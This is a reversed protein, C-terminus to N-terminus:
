IQAQWVIPFFVSMEAQGRNSWAYYPIFSTPHIRWQPQRVATYMEKRQSTRLMVEGKLVTVGGLLDSKHEPILPRHGDLYVDLISAEEPLDPSELCYILPGRQVAVQNRVEEILPHGEVFTVSMPLDLNVIDGPKWSRVVECFTGPRSVEDVPQGNVTLQAENAWSPIRFSIAFPDAKCSDIVCSITGDWPYESQQRMAFASGDGLKTELQNSGYLNVALGNETLLYAWGSVKSITRVLNPPCCFCEIYQERDASETCDAEQTYERTGHVMRLPNAYFYHKGDHSIGVLASNYLVREMVDGYKAEGTLNLMRWNFMANAVNACTENYATTNPMLYDDLFGEHIMNYRGRAGHHVQGVAGTLYMKREVASSWLRQLAEFLAKEGTEAYVDAAGAYLYM